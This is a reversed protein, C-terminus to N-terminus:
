NKNENYWNIFEVVANYTDKIDVDVLSFTIEGILNECEDHNIDELEFIKEVVTMLWNWDSSFPLHDMCNGMISNFPLGSKVIDDGVYTFHDKYLRDSQELGMFSAILKVEALQEKTM